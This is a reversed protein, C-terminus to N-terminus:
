LRDFSDALKLDAGTIGGESHTSLTLRVHNWGHVLIDPHHNASEAVDAVRNVFSIAEGFDKFRWERVIANGERRWDGDELRAAIEDDSLLTM